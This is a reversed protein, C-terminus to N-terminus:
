GGSGPPASQLGQYDPDIRPACVSAQSGGQVCALFQETVRQADALERGLDKGQLARDVARLFWYYDIPSQTRDPAAGAVSSTRQFAARYAQYVAAAGSPAQRRFADSEALSSRAPFGGRLNVLDSSLYKLWAWCVAPQQTAASIALGRLFFDNTTIASRGLPPPARAALSWLFHGPGDM